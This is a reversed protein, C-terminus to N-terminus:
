PGPSAIRVRMTTESIRLAIKTLHMQLTKFEAIALPRPQPVKNRVKLLMRYSGIHLVPRVQHAIPL